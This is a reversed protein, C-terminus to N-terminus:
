AFARALPRLEVIVARTDAAISLLERAVLPGLEVRVHVPTPMGVAREARAGRAELARMFADVDGHVRLALTRDAAAVEAPAGQAVVRAGDLVIAEDAMLALPSELAIRGAFLAVRKGELARRVLRALPRVAEDPLGTLPDEVLLTTAGSALAAAIVVARRMSPGAAGLKTTASSRLQLAELAGSAADGAESAVLGSLRASWRTYEAVTWTPPLAPDRPAVSAVGARIAARPELGEIAITGRVVPRLGTAAEFLARAAGLVLVQAGSTAFSLGDFAPTGEVDVRVERASLLVPM